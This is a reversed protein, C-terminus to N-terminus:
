FHTCSDLLTINLLKIVFYRFFIKRKYSIILRFSRFNMKKIVAKLKHADEIQVSEFFTYIVYFPFQESCSIQYNFLSACSCKIIKFPLYNKKQSENFSM